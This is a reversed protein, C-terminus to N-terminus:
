SKKGYNLDRPKVFATLTATGPALTAWSSALTLTALAGTPFKDNL